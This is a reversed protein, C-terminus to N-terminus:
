ACPQRLRDRWRRAWPIVNTEITHLLRGYPTPAFAELNVTEYCGSAWHLKYENAIPGMDYEHVDPRGFLAQVIRINLYAGPSLSALAEDFDARLAHRRGDAGIQYETAVARGDLRLIWLHLWGNASARRTLERFFQPMGPMTAMALGRPGKWSRRSVELVEAFAPGDPDVARHEETTVPGTRGIRNEISRCGKRFRQTKGRFFGEWTGSISLYPSRLTGRRRWLFRGPLREELGKLTASTTMLKHLVLADWDSRATLHDLLADIARGAEGLVLMDLFPSDPYELFGLCRMPLGRRRERWRIMPVIAVPCAGEEIVLIEPRRRPQVANWGCWFWDHSLFPSTQGSANALEAWVPALAALEEAREIRRVKLSM